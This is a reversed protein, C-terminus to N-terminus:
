LPQSGDLQHNGKLFGRPENGCEGLVLLFFNAPPLISGMFQTGLLFLTLFSCGDTQRVALLTSSVQASIGGSWPEPLIIAICSAVRWECSAKLKLM